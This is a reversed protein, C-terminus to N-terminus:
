AASLVPSPTTIRPISLNIPIEQREKILLVMKVLLMNNVAKSEMECALMGSLSAKSIKYGTALSNLFRSAHMIEM